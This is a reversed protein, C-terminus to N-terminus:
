PASNERDPALLSSSDGAGDKVKLGQVKPHNPFAEKALRVLAPWMRASCGGGTRRLERGGADKVILELNSCYFCVLIEVTEYRSNRVRFAVGPWFCSPPPVFYSEERFLVRALRAAFDPGQEDATGIVAFEGIWHEGPKAQAHRTQSGPDVRFVEVAVPDTLVALAPEGLRAKVKASPEVPHSLPDEEPWLWVYGVLAGATLIM